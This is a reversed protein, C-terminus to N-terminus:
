PFTQLIIVFMGKVGQVSDLYRLLSTSIHILTFNLFQDVNVLFFKIFDLM